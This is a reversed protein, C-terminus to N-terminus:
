PNRAPAFGDLFWADFQGVIGPLVTEAEGIFITLTFGDDPFCLRQPAYARVPWQALLRQSLPSVEPFQALARAADARALPFAEITSIHLQAHPLRTKKWASWAALVNLGTGFGLECIAFRDKCKWLDPLGCGALFVAESEALGGLKAFYVDDFAAARPAGDASWDLEPKPPLRPM